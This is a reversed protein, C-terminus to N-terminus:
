KEIYNIYLMIVHRAVIKKGSLRRQRRTVTSHRHGKTQNVNTSEKSHLGMRELPVV